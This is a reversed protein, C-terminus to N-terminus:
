LEVRLCIEQEIVCVEFLNEACCLFITQEFTLMLTGRFKEIAASALITSNKITNLRPWGEKM